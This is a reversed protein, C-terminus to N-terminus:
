RLSSIYASWDNNTLPKNSKILVLLQNKTFIVSQEGTGGSAVYVPTNGAAVFKDTANSSQALQAVKNATDSKLNDPLPQESVNIHVNGVTDVYTYVPDKDPPSIRVWGGLQQITKGAPLLTTFNPTGYHLQPRKYDAGAPTKATSAPSHSGFLQAVIVLAAVALTIIGVRLWTRRRLRRLGQWLEAPTPLTPWALTFHYTRVTYRPAPRVTVTRPQPQSVVPFRTSMYQGSLDRQGTLRVKQLDTTKTAPRVPRKIGLARVTVKELGNGLDKIVARTAALGSPHGAENVPIKITIPIRM